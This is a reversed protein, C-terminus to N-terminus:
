REWIRSGGVDWPWGLTSKGEQTRCEIQVAEAVGGQRSEAADGDVCGRVRGIRRGM